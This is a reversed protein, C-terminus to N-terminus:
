QCGGGDAQFHLHCVGPSQQCQGDRGMERSRPAQDLSPPTQDSLRVCVQSRGDRLHPPAPLPGPGVCWAKAKSPHHQFQRSVQPSVEPSCTAGAIQRLSPGVNQPDFEYVYFCFSGAGSERTRTAMAVAPRSVTTLIALVWWGEGKGVDSNGGIPSVSGTARWRGAGPHLGFQRPKRM